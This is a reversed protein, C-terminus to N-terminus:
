EIKLSTVGVHDSVVKIRIAWRLTTAAIITIDPANTTRHGCCTSWRCGRSRLDLENHLDNLDQDLWAMHSRPDEDDSTISQHQVLASKTDISRDWMDWLSTLFIERLGIKYCFTANHSIISPYQPIRSMHTNFWRSVDNICNWDCCLLQCSLKCWILNIWFSIHFSVNRGKLYIERSEHFWSYCKEFYNWEFFYKMWIAVFNLWKTLAAIQSISHLTIFIWTNSPMNM